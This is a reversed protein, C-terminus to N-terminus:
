VENKAVSELLGVHKLFTILAIWTVQKLLKEEVGKLEITHEWDKMMM